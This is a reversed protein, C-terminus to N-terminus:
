WELQLWVDGSTTYRNKKVTLIVNTSEKFFAINIKVPSIATM